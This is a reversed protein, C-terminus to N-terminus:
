HGVRCLKKDHDVVITIYNNRRLYSFEDVGIRKLGHLRNPNLRETVVRDIINGVTRWSISM